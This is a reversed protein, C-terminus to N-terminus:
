KRGKQIQEKIRQLAKSGPSLDSAQILLDRTRPDRMLDSRNQLGLKELGRQAWADPGKAPAPSAAPAPAMAQKTAAPQAAVRPQAMVPAIEDVGVGQARKILAQLEAPNNKAMEVLKTEPILKRITNLANISAKLAAPSSTAVGIVTGVPGALLTGMGASVAMRAIAKGTADAPLWGPDKFANAASLDKAKDMIPYGSADGLKKLNLYNRDNAGSGAAM